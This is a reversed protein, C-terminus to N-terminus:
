SFSLYFVTVIQTKLFIGTETELGVISYWVLYTNVKKEGNFDTLILLTETGNVEHPLFEM